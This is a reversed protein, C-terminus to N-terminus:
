TESRLRNLGADLCCDCHQGLVSYLAPPAVDPPTAAPARPIGTVISRGVGDGARDPTAENNNLEPHHRTRTPLRRSPATTGTRSGPVAENGTPDRRECTAPNARTVVPSWNALPGSSLVSLITAISQLGVNRDGGHVLGEKRRRKSNSWSGSASAASYTTSGCVCRRVPRREHDHVPRIGYILSRSQSLALSVDRAMKSFCCCCANCEVATVAGVAVTM